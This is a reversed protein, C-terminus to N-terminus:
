IEEGERLMIRLKYENSIDGGKISPLPSLSIHEISFNRKGTNFKLPINTSAVVIVKEEICSGDEYIEISVLAEGEWICTVDQPCRSDSIVEKFKISRNEFNLMDGEQLYSSYLSGQGTEQAATVASLLLVLSVIFYKM